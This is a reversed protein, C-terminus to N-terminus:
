GIPFQAAMGCMTLLSKDDTGPELQKVEVAAPGSALRIEYDPTRTETTEVRRCEIGREQCFREFLVESITMMDM